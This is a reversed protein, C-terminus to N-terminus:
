AKEARTDGKKHRRVISGDKLEYESDKPFAWGCRPMAMLAEAHAVDFERPANDEQRVLTVLTRKEM